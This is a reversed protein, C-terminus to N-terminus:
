VSAASSGTRSKKNPPLTPGPNSPEPGSNPLGPNSPPRKQSLVFPRSTDHPKCVTLFSRTLSSSLPKQLNEFNPPGMSLSFGVIFGAMSRIKHEVNTLTSKVRVQSNLEEPLCPRGAQPDPSLLVGDRGSGKILTLCLDKQPFHPSLSISCPRLSMQM